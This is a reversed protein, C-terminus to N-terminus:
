KLATTQKVWTLYVAHHYSFVSIFLSIYVIASHAAQLRVGSEPYQAPSSSGRVAPRTGTELIQRLDGEKCLM